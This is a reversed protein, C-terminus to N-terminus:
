RHPHTVTLTLAPDHRGYLARLMSGDPIGQGVPRWHRDVRDLTQEFESEEVIVGPVLLDWRNAAEQWLRFQRHAGGTRRVWQSWGPLLATLATMKPLGAVTALENALPWLWYCCPAGEPGNSTQHARASLDFLTSAARRKAVTTAEPRLLTDVAGIVFLADAGTAPPAPRGLGHWPGLLRGIIELGGNGIARPPLSEVVEPVIWRCRPRLVEGLLLMRGASTSMMAKASIESGTGLTTPVALLPIPTAIPVLYQAGGRGQYQEDLYRAGSVALKAADLTRGGGVAVVADVAGLAATLQGVEHVGVPAADPEIVVTRVPAVTRLLDRIEQPALAVATLDVIAGVDPGQDRLWDGAQEKTRVRRPGEAPSGTTM